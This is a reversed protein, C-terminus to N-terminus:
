QNTRSFLGFVVTMVIGGVISVAFWTGVAALIGTGLYSELAVPVGIIAALTFALDQSTM